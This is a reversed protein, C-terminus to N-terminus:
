CSENKTSFGRKSFVLQYKLPKVIGDIVRKVTVMDIDNWDTTTKNKLGRVIDYIEKEEVARLFMSSRNREIDEGTDREIGDVKIEEALKPGINIFFENFGNVVENM